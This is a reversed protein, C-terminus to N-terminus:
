NDVRLTDAYQHLGSTTRKNVLLKCARSQGNRGGQLDGRSSALATLECVRLQDPQVPLTQHLHMSQFRM